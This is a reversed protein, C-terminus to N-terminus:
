NEYKRRVIEEFVWSIVCDASAVIHGKSAIGLTKTINMVKSCPPLTGYNKMYQNDQYVKKLDEETLSSLIDKILNM